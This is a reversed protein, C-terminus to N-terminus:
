CEASLHGHVQFSRERQEQQEGQEGGQRGRVERRDPVPAAKAHEGDEDILLVVEDGGLGALAEVTLQELAEGGELPDVELHDGLGAPIGEDGGEERPLPIDDGATERRRLAAALQDGEGVRLTTRVRFGWRTTVV